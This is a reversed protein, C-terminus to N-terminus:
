KRILKKINDKETILCKKYMFDKINEPKNTLYYNLLLEMYVRKFEEPVMFAGIENEILIKNGALSAVRKICDDFLQMRSTWLITTLGKDIPDKIDQIKLMEKKMMDICPIDPAYESGYITLNKKRFCGNTHNKSLQSKAVLRHINLLTELSTTEDLHKLIYDWGNKLDLARLPPEGNNIMRNVEIKCVSKGLLISEERNM